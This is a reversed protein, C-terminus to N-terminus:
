GARRPLTRRDSTALPDEKETLARGDSVVRPANGTTHSTAMATRSMLNTSARHTVGGTFQSPAQCQWRRPRSRRATCQARRPSPSALRPVSRRARPLSPRDGSQLPTARVPAGQVPATYRDSCCVLGRFLPFPLLPLAVANVPFRRFPMM